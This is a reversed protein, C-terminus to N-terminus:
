EDSIRAQMEVITVKAEKLIKRGRIGKRTKVEQFAKHLAMGMNTAEIERVNQQAVGFPLNPFFFEVHFRKQSM